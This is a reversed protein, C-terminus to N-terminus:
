MKVLKSPTNAGAGRVRIFYLGVPLSSINLPFSNQVVPTVMVRQGRQDYIELQSGLPVSPNTVVRVIDIAPNPYVSLLEGTKNAPIEPTSGTPNSGQPAANSQLLAARAGGEAFLTRMRERQGYTFLHMGIDDTFDMFDMYLNGNPTNGCSFVMGSPNGRTAAGQQPTDGVRDDGCAADGWVHILNFWHGVEHTATRGLNFPASATGMTGFATYHIAVGDNEKPCGPASAYGLVGNSLNGVWINLYRDRDWANDGGRSTFKIADDYSFSQANTHKRVIGTTPSGNTDISALAFRIRCDASLESYYFPIKSTDGNQKRYDRNLVAIQSLVQEDSINQSNSNYIIHVIVPITIVALDNSSQEHDVGNVTVPRTHLQHQTFAEIELMKGALGPHHSILAQRYEVSRCDQQGLTLFRFSLFVTVLTFFRM